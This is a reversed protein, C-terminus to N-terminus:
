SGAKFQRLVLRDEPSLTTKLAKALVDGSAARSWCAPNSCLYAGRGARKGSPDLALGTETMVIRMLDRKGAQQRCVVCTRIPAPKRQPARLPADSM